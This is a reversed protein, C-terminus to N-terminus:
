RYCCILAFHLYLVGWAMVGVISAWLIDGEKLGEEMMKLKSRPVWIPTACLQRIYLVLTMTERFDTDIFNLATCQFVAFAELAFVVVYQKLLFASLSM